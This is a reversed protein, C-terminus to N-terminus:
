LGPKYIKPSCSPTMSFDDKLFFKENININSGVISITARVDQNKTKLKKVFVRPTIVILDKEGFFLEYEKTSFHKPKNKYYATLSVSLTHKGPAIRSTKGTPRRNIIKGDVMATITSTFDDKCSKFPYDNIIKIQANKGIPGELDDRPKLDNPGRTGIANSGGFQFQHEFTPKVPPSSCANILITTAILSIIKM